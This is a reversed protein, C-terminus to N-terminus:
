SQRRRGRRRASAGQSAIQGVRSTSLGLVDAIEEYTWGGDAARRVLENRASRAEEHDASAAKYADEAKRLEQGTIKENAVAASDVRRRLRCPRLATDRLAARSSRERM